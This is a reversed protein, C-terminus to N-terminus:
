LLVRCQSWLSWMESCPYLSSQWICLLTPVIGKRGISVPRSIDSLLHTPSIFNNFTTLYLGVWDYSGHRHASSKTWVTLYERCNAISPSPAGQAKCNVVSKNDIFINLLTPLMANLWTHVWQHSLTLCIARTLGWSSCCCCYCFLLSTFLPGLNMLFIPHQCPCYSFLTQKYAHM